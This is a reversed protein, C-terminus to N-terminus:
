TRVASLLYENSIIFAKADFMQLLVLKGPGRWRETVLTLATRWNEAPLAAIVSDGLVRGAEELFERLQPGAPAVKGVHYIGRKGALFHLILESKGVRRRGYIPVFAGTGSRWEDDLVKLETRRGVFSASDYRKDSSMEVYNPVDFCSKDLDSCRLLTDGAHRGTPATQVLDTAVEVTFSAFPEHMTADIAQVTPNHLTFGISWDDGSPSLELTATPTRSHAICDRQM